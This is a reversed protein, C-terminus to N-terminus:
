CLARRSDVVIKLSTKRKRPVHWQDFDYGYRAPFDIGSKPIGNASM